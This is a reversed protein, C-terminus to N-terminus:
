TDFCTQDFCVISSLTINIRGELESIFINHLYLCIVIRIMMAM